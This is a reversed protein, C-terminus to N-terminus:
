RYEITITSAVPPKSALAGADTTEGRSLVLRLELNAPTDSELGGTSPLVCRQAQGAQQSAVLNWGGTAGRQFLYIYGDERPEIQLRLSDGAHFVARPPAPVYAGGSDRLLLTYRVASKAPVSIMKASISPLPALAATAVPPPASPPAIAKAVIVEQRAAPRTRLLVIGAVILLAAMGGAMALVAPRRWWPLSERAPGLAQILQQRASSDHLVDRLVQEKALADFLDQDELAAEFLARREAESLTDTAYGGLLKQIEERNM